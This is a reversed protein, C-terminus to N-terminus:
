RQKEASIGPAEGLLVRYDTSGVEAYLGMIGLLM